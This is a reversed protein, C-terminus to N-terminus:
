LTSMQTNNTVKVKRKILTLANLILTILDKINEEELLKLHGETLIMLDENTLDIQFSQCTMSNFAIIRIMRMPLDCKLFNVTLYHSNVQLAQRGIIRFKDIDICDHSM